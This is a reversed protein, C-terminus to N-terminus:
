YEVSHKKFHCNACLLDCKEVEAKIYDFGKREFTALNLPVEKESPDRHHFQFICANRGDYETGCDQCKGGKLIILEAKREHSRRRKLEYRYKRNRHNWERKHQTLDEYKRGNHGSVYIKQRYYHDKGKIQQGCGCACTVNDLQTYREDSMRKTMHNTDTRWCKRPKM